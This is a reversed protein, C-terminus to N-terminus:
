SKELQSVKALGRSVSEPQAVIATLSHLVDLAANPTTSTEM